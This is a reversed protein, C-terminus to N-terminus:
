KGNFSILESNRLPETKVQRFFEDALEPTKGKWNEPNVRHSYIFFGALNNNDFHRCVFVEDELIQYSSNASKQSTGYDESKSHFRLCNSGMEKWLKGNNELIKFRPDNNGRARETSIHNLFAEETELGKPLPVLFGQILLSEGKGLGTKGLTIKNDKDEFIVWGQENPVVISYGERQIKSGPALTKNSVTCSSVFLLILCAAFYKRLNM